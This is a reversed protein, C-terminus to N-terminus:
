DNETSRSGDDGADGCVTWLSPDFAMIETYDAGGIDRCGPFLGLHTWLSSRLSKWIWLELMAIVVTASICLFALILADGYEYINM